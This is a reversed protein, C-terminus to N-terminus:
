VCAEPAWSLRELPAFSSTPTPLRLDDPGLPVVETERPVPLLAYALLALSLVLIALGVLAM